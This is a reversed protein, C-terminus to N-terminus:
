IKKMAKTKPNEAIGFLMELTMTDSDDYFGEEVFEFLETTYTNKMEAIATNLANLDSCQKYGTPNKHGQKWILRYKILDCTLQADEGDARRFKVFQFRNGM